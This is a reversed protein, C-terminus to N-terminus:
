NRQNATVVPAYESGHIHGAYVKFRGIWRAHADAGGPQRDKMIAL